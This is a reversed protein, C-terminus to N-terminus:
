KGEIAFEELLSGDLATQWARQLKWGAGESARTLVYHYVSPDGNKQGHFTRTVPWSGTQTEQPMSFSFHGHEDKSIGPLERKKILNEIIKGAEVTLAAGPQKLYRQYRTEYDKPPKGPKIGMADQFAKIDAAIPTYAPTNQFEAWLMELNKGTAKKFFKDSYSGSRLSNHLQCVLNSGYVGDLYL